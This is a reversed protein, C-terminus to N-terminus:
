SGPNPRRDTWIIPLQEVEFFVRPFSSIQCALLGFSKRLEFSEPLAIGILHTEHEWVLWRESRLSFDSLRRGAERPSVVLSSMGIGKSVTRHFKRTIVNFERAYQRDAPICHREMQPQGMQAFARVAPPSAMRRLPIGRLSIKM